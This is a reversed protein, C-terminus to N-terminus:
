LTFSRWEAFRGVLATGLGRNRYQVSINVHLHAPYTEDSRFDRKASAEFFIGDLDALHSTFDAVEDSASTVSALRTQIAWEAALLAAAVVQGGHSRCRGVSAVGPAV